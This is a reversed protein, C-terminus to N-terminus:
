LILKNNERKNFWFSDPRGIEWKETCDSMSSNALSDSDSINTKFYIDIDLLSM